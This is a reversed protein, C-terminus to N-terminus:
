GLPLTASTIKELRQARVSWPTALNCLSAPHPLSSAITFIKKKSRPTYDRPLFSLPFLKQIILRIRLLPIGVSSPPAVHGTVPLWLVRRTVPLPSARPYHSIKFYSATPAEPFHGAPELEANLM